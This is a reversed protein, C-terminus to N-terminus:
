LKLNAVTLLTSYKSLNLSVIESRGFPISNTQKKKNLNNWRKIKIAFSYSKMLSFCQETQKLSLPPHTHKGRVIATYTLYGWKVHQPPSITWAVALSLIRPDGPKATQTFNILLSDKEMPFSELVGTHRSGEHFLSSGSHQTRSRMVWAGQLTGAMCWIARLLYLPIHPKMSSQGCCKFLSHDPFTHHKFQLHWRWKLNWFINLSAQATLEPLHPYKEWLSSCTNM